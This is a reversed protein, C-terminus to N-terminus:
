AAEKQGYMTKELKLLQDQDGVSEGNALIAPRILVTSKQPASLYAKEIDFLWVSESTTTSALVARISSMQPTPSNTDQNPRMDEFGRVVWRAKVYKEGSDSDVKKDICWKTSLLVAEGSEIMDKGEQASIPTFVNRDSFGKLQDLQARVVESEDLASALMNVM